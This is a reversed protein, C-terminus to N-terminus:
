LSLLGRSRPAVPLLIYTSFYENVEDPRSGALKRSTAYGGVMISGHVGRLILAIYLQSTWKYTYKSMVRKVLEM